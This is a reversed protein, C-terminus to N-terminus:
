LSRFLTEPTNLDSIESNSIENQLSKLSDLVQSKLGIRSALHVFARTVLPSIGIFYRTKGQSDSIHMLINKLTHPWYNAGFFIGSSRIKVLNIIESCLDDIHTLFFRSRGSYPMPILPLRLCLSQLLHYIGQANPGYVIGARVAAGGNELFKMEAFNKSMGYTSKTRSHSSLSSLLIMYGHFSNVLTNIADINEYLDLSRDHALHILVDASIGRPFPEGLKWLSSDRGGLLVIQYGEMLLRNSLQKGIASTSGSIAIIM